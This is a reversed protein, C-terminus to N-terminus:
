TVVKASHKLEQSKITPAIGVPKKLLLVRAVFKLWVKLSVGRIVVTGTPSNSKVVKTLLKMEVKSPPIPIM